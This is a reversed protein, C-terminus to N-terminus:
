MPYIYGCAGGDVLYGTKAVEKLEDKSTTYSNDISVGNWTRNLLVTGPKETAYVYCAIGQDVFGLEGLCMNREAMACTFLHRKSAEQYLHYLPVAGDLPVTLVTGIPGYSVWVAGQVTPIKSIDPDTSLTHKKEVKNWFQYIPTKFLALAIHLQTAKDFLSLVSQVELVRTVGWKRPDSLSERWKDLSSAEIAGGITHFDLSDFENEAQQTQKNETGGGMAFKKGLAVSMQMKVSSETTKDDLIKETTSHKMGGVEVSTVFMTGYWDLVRRIEETRETEDPIALASKIAEEFDPHPKLKSIYDRMSLKCHAFNYRGTIYIQKQSASAASSQSLSAKVGVSVWPTKVALSADVWGAELYSSSRSSYTTVVDHQGEEGSAFTIRDM